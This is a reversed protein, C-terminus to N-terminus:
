EFRIILTDKLQILFQYNKLNRNSFSLELLIYINAFSIILRLM